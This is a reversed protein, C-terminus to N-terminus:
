RSHLLDPAASIAPANRDSPKSCIPSAAGSVKSAESARRASSPASQATPRPGDLAALSSSIPTIVGRLSVVEGRELGGPILASM